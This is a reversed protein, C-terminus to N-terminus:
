EGDPSEAKLETLQKELMRVRKILDPLKKWGAFVRWAQHRPLAPSGVYIQGGELDTFVGSQAAVMAMDGIEVHDSVGVQGGMLVNRGIKASGSVGVQAALIANPGIYVNHAVQVHNDIKVGSSVVTKGMTARDITSNAGIEVNDGIEVTGTQPIKQHSGDPRPVFGLGDAGIVTGAHIICEAGITAAASVVVGPHLITGRGITAGPGVCCQPHVVAEPGITAGPGVYALPYVSATPDIAASPDVAAGAAVGAPHDAPPLFLEAVRAFGLKPDPARLLTLDDRSPLDPGVIVASAKTNLYAETPKDALLFSILGPAAQELPAVGVLELDAAGEIEAGIAEAIRTITLKKMPESRPPTSRTLSMSRIMQNTIDVSKNFYVVGSRANIVMDYGQNAGYEKVLSVMKNIIPRTREMELQRIRSQSEQYLERYSRSKRGLDGELNLRATNSLVGAGKELKGRIAEIEKEKQDLESQIKDVEKKLDKYAQKGQDTMQVAKTIDLVGIKGALAPSAAVLLFSITILGFYKALKM